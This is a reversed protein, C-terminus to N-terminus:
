CFHHINFDGERKVLTFPGMINRGIAEVAVTDTEALDSLDPFVEEVRLRMSGRPPISPMEQSRLPQGQSNRITLSWDASGVEADEGYYSNMVILEIEPTLKPRVVCIWPPSQQPAFRM